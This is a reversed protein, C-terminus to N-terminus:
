RITGDTMQHEPHHHLRLVRRRTATGTSVSVPRHSPVSVAQMGAANRWGQEWQPVGAARGLVLEWKPAKTIAYATLRMLRNM